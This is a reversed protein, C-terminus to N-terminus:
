CVEAFTETNRTKVNGEKKFQQLEVTFRQNEEFLLKVTRNLQSLLDNICVNLLNVKNFLMQQLQQSSNKEIV